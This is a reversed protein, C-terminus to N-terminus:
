LTTNINSRLQVAEAIHRETIMESNDLDAITRAVKIIRDYSRASLGMKVFVQELISQATTTLLCTKQIHRHRMQANCFIHYKSLRKLQIKRAEEVRSRIVSSSESRKDGVM